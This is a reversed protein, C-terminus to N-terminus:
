HGYPRKENLEPNDSLLKSITVSGARMKFYKEIVNVNWENWERGKIRHSESKREVGDLEDKFLPSKNHSLDNQKKFM